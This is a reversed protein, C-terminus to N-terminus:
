AGSPAPAANGRGQESRAQNYQRIKERLFVEIQATLTRSEVAAIREVEDMVDDALRFTRKTAGEKKKQAM